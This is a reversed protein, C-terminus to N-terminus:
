MSAMSRCTLGRGHPMREHPRADSMSRAPVSSTKDSSGACGRDWPSRVRVGQRKLEQRVTEASCGFRESLRHCSWGEVYLTVGQPLQEAALRQRRLNVGARQLHAAVTTRHLDWTKALSQMTTVPKM